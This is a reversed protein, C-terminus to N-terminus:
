GTAVLANRVADIFAHAVGPVLLNGSRRWYISLPIGTIMHAIALSQARLLLSMGHGDAAVLPLHWLGWLCSVVAASRDPKRIM